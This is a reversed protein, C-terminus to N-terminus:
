PGYTKVYNLKSDIYHNCWQRATSVNQVGLRTIWYAPEDVGYSRKVGNSDLATYRWSDFTGKAHREAAAPWNHALVALEWARKHNTAGVLGYYRDKRDRFAKAARELSSLCFARRWSEPSVYVSGGDIQTTVRTQILGCDVGYSNSTGSWSVAGVYNGSEGEVVGRTLDVPLRNDAEAVHIASLTISKQTASGAIGDVTLGARSQWAKVAKETRPGFAGDEALGERALDNLLGQLALIEHGSQGNKLVYRYTKAPAYWTM